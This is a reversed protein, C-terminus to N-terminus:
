GNQTEETESHTPVTTKRDYGVKQEMQTERLMTITENIRARDYVLGDAKSWLSQENSMDKRRQEEEMLARYRELVYISDDIFARPTDASLPSFGQRKLEPLYEHELLAKRLKDTSRPIGLIEREKIADLERQARTAQVDLIDARYSEQLHANETHEGSQPTTYDTVLRRIIKGVQTDQDHFLVESPTDSPLTLESEPNKMLKTYRERESPVM